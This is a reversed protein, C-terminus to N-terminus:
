AALTDLTDCINTWIDFPIVGTEILDSFVEQCIDRNSRSPNVVIAKKRKAFRQEEFHIINQNFESAKRLSSKVDYIVFGYERETEKETTSTQDVVKVYSIYISVDNGHHDRLDIKGKSPNHRGSHEAKALLKYSRYHAELISCFRVMLKYFRNENRIGRDLGEKEKRARGRPKLHRAYRHTKHAKPPLAPKPQSPQRIPLLKIAVLSGKGDYQCEVRKERELERCLKKTLTHAEKSGLGFRDLFMKAISDLPNELFVEKAYLELYELLRARQRDSKLAKQYGSERTSVALTQPM